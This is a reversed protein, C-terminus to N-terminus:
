IIRKEEQIETTEQTRHCQTFRCFLGDGLDQVLSEQGQGTEM